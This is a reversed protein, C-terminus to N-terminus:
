DTAISRSASTENGENDRATVHVTLQARSRITVTGLYIGRARRKTPIRKGNLLRATVRTIRGNDSAAIRVLLTFSKGTRRTQLRISDIRPPQNNPQNGVGGGDTMDPPLLASSQSAFAGVRLQAFNNGSFDRTFENSRDGEPTPEDSSRAAFSSLPSLQLASLNGGDIPRLDGSEPHVLEPQISNIYNSSRLLSVTCTPHTSQCGQNEGEIGLSHSPDGNWIVNGRIELEEDTRQPSPIGAATPVRPGHITFHQDNSPYGPPNYILNNFIKVRRNGIPQAEQAPTRPGWGGAAARATCTAADGDCSHEGFVVEILHSRSGVRYATNHAILINMGGNVGLAAGTIDRIVNNVIKIDYAEYRVWPAVTFEFGTGQGATIGGEFCNFLHNGEIRVYSSGGKVYLCWSHADSITNGIIHGYQVAVWDIANDTAGRITNNEIYIYQSQNVKITERAAPPVNRGQPAGIFTNGRLLIHDCAECHFVDGGREITINLLYFYSVNAMNIDHVLMVTGAGDAAQMIIPAERTGRKLEWYSPLEGSDNGYTGPLLQIRYGVRLTQSSPIRRWAAVVTRLAADRSSGSNEDSGNTPDVFLDQLSPIGVDYRYPLFSQCHGTGGYLLLAAFLYTLLCSLPVTRHRSFFPHNPSVAM